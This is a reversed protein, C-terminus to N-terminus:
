IHILTLISTYAYECKAIYLRIETGPFPIGLNENYNVENQFHIWLYLILFTKWKYLDFVVFHKVM